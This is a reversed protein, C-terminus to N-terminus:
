AVKAFGVRREVIVREVLGRDLHASGVLGQRHCANGGRIHVYVGREWIVDASAAPRLLREINPPSVTERM